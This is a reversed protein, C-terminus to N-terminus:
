SQGEKKFYGEIVKTEEIEMPVEALEPSVISDVKLERMRDKSYEDFRIPKGDVKILKSSSKLLYGSKMAQKKFDKLKLPIIDASEYQKCFLFIQNLMESTRIYLGEGTEKVVNKLDGTKCDEIMTNYLIIMQEVISKTDTGNDLIEEKINKYIYDEYDKIQRLGHKKLLINYIEIGCAINIATDLAREKLDKFSNRKKKRIERYTDVSLNLIENIISKGFKNLIDQNDIIWEMAETNKKTRERKSLYVICSRSILASEQNPYNEEGAMILPRTLRFSKVKFSKDGRNIVQRDYLNRIIDSMKQMKYKDMMSPKFEDYISSYNGTALDKIIAFPTTGISKKDSLPYNLIPAIVKELITSKGSQSEGIILLVHLKAGVAENQYVALNNVITGFIPISKTPEWFKFIKDKFEILESKTIFEKDMIDINSKDSITEYDVGDTTIAGKGTVLILKDNKEIFKDGLYIFNNETAWYRNIWMKLKTLDEINKSTFSADMTGLFHKFSKIDDFVTSFDSREITDGTPTKIILQVGERNEGIYILRKAEILKFDTLYQKEHEDAKKNYWWKFVGNRNQQLEFKSKLDLSRDFANLLDKKTKGVDLWDTVDKNNGLLRLGPLNIFKFEIADSYFEEYIKWQYKEGAKGTDSIVYVKYKLGNQLIKLDLCGKISTAVYPEKKLLSNLTNADKEGEVFIITYGRKIAELVNHLNYPVEEIGERNSKVKDNEIHYYPTEKKGDLKRFKAKFYIFEGQPNTFPFLGLFEYGKKTNKLQWDIYSRVKDIILEKPTKENELGLYERAAKYELNRFKVIFDIADGVEGCGFCKYKEKNRDPFFKVKMSPTEETHFPCLIYGEKNFREGTEEEILERLDIDQLEKLQKSM